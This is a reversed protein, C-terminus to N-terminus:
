ATIPLDFLTKIGKQQCEQAYTEIKPIVGANYALTNKDSYFKVRAKKMGQQSLLYLKHHGDAIVQSGNIKCVEPLENALIPNSVLFDLTQQKLFLETPQLKKIELIRTQPM